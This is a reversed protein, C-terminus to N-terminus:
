IEHRKNKSIQLHSYTILFLIVAILGHPLRYITAYLSNHISDLIFSTNFSSVVRALATLLGWILIYCLAFKMTRRFYILTAALVDLAGATTLFVKAQDETFGTIKITMDIFHGPYFPIGMAYLGHAIFTISLAIKLITSIKDKREPKFNDLNLLVIPLTVQILLEFIQLFSYNKDKFICIGLIFLIGICLSIILQKAVKFKIKSWFLAVIAGTFLLIGCSQTFIDIRDSYVTNSAYEEWSMNLLSEIIPSLFSEDWLIARFPAGFFFFQYARGLLIFFVSLRLILQWTIKRSM